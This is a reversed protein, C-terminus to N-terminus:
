QNLLKVSQEQPWQAESTLEEGAPHLFQKYAFLRKCSGEPFMIVGMVLSLWCEELM